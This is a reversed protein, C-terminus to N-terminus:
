LTEQRFGDFEVLEIQNLYEPPIYSEFNSTFEPAFVYVNIGEADDELRKHLWRVYKVM